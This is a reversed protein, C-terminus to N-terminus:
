MQESHHECQSTGRQGSDHTFRWKHKSCNELAPLLFFEFAGLCLGRLPAAAEAGALRLFAGDGSATVPRRHECYAQSAQKQALSLTWIGKGHIHTGIGFGGCLLPPGEGGGSGAGGGM